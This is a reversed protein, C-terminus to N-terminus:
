LLAPTPDVPPHALVLFELPKRRLTTESCHSSSEESERKYELRQAIGHTVSKILWDAPFLVGKLTNAPRPTKFTPRLLSGRDQPLELVQFGCGLQVENPDSREPIPGSPGGLIGWCETRPSPPQGATTIDKPLSPENVVQPTPRGARKLNLPWLRRTRFPLPSHPGANGPEQTMGVVSRYSCTLGCCVQM